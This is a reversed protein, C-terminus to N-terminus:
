SGCAMAYLKEGRTDIQTNLYTLLDLMASRAAVENWRQAYGCMQQAKDYATDLKYALEMGLEYRPENTVSYEWQGCYTYSQPLCRPEGASSETCVYQVSNVPYLCRSSTNEVDRSAMQRVIESGQPVTKLQQLVYLCGPGSLADLDPNSSLYAILNHVPQMVQDHMERCQNSSVPAFAAISLAMGALVLQKVRVGCVCSFLNM